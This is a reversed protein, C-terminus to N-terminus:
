SSSRAPRTSSMTTKFLDSRDSTCLVASARFPELHENETLMRRHKQVDRRQVMTSVKQSTITTSSLADPPDCLFQQVHVNVGSESDLGGYHVLTTMSM